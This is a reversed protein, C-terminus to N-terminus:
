LLFSSGPALQQPPPPAPRRPRHLSEQRLRRRHHHAAGELGHVHQLLRQSRMMELHATAIIGRSRLSDTGALFHSAMRQM